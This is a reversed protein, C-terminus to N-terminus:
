LSGIQNCADIKADSHERYSESYEVLGIKCGPGIYVKRGRVVKAETYELHIVDGEITEAILDRHRNQGFMNLLSSMFTRKVKISHGGIETAKCLGYLVIDIHEANLMGSAQIEGRITLQEANCDGHLRVSGAGKFSESQISNRVTTDGYLKVQRVELKGGVELQGSTKISDGYIDGQVKLNGTLKTENSRLHGNVVATGTCKFFSSVVDSHITGEGVIKVNQFTGGASSGTGTIKIDKDM